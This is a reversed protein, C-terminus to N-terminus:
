ETAKYIKDLFILGDPSGCWVIVSLSRNGQVNIKDWQEVKFVTMTLM